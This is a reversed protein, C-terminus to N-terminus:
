SKSLIEEQGAKWPPSVICLFTLKEEGINRVYQQVGKKILFVENKKVTFEENEICIVCEGNLIYYLEDNQLIHPLSSKGVGLGGHALSYPLDLGEKDPHLIERIITADGASFATTEKVKNHIYADMYINM